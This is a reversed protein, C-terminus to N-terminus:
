AWEMVVVRVVVMVWETDNIDSLLLENSAAHLIRVTDEDSAPALDKM